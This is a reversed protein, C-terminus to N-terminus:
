RGQFEYAGADLARIRKRPEIGLPHVYQFEPRLVFGNPAKGPDFGQDIAASGPLLRYDFAQRNKFRADELILDNKEEGPGTLAQIEGVLLNNFLQAPAVSFNKVFMGGAYDDVGTNSAVYLGQRPNERNHESAYAIMVPGDAEANKRLLNGVLYSNGGNPLDILYSSGNREDTIRNYLIYNELARSKVNHGISADHVYSNRLTFRGVGGIYVNHGLRGYRRYDVTNEYFESGEILIQSRPNDGMLIGMENHHFRSNRVTLNTGEFRIGAGNMSTSRARSFDVNEVTVDAGKLVWIAKNEAAAYQADLHAIGGVGRLTLRNQRWVAVDGRYLRADIAVEDGDRALRAAESPLKIARTPGVELKAACASAHIMLGLVASLAKRMTPRRMPRIREERPIKM